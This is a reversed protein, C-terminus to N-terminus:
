FSTVKRSTVSISPCSKQGRVDVKRARCIGPRVARTSLRIALRRPHSTRLIAPWLRAWSRKLPCRGCAKCIVPRASGTVSTVRKWGACALRQAVDHPWRPGADGPPGWYLTFLSNDGPFIGEKMVWPKGYPDTGGEEISGDVRQIRPKIRPSLEVANYGDLSFM